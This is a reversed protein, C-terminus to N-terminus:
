NKSNKLLFIYNRWPMRIWSFDIYPTSCLLKYIKFGFLHALFRELAIFRHHPRCVTYDAAGLRDYFSRPRYYLKVNGSDKFNITLSKTKSIFDRIFIFGGEKLTKRALRLLEDTDADNFFLLLGSIVIVDYSNNTHKLFNIADDLYVSVKKENQFRKFLFDSHKEELDVADIREAYEILSQTFRGNGAALDLCTTKKPFRRLYKQFVIEELLNDYTDLIGFDYYSPSDKSRIPIASWHSKNM